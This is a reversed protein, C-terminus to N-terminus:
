KSETVQVYLITNGVDKLLEQFGEKTLLYGGGEHAEIVHKAPVDFEVQIPRGDVPVLHPSFPKYPHPDTILKEIQM